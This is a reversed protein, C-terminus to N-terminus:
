VAAITEVQVMCAALKRSEGFRMRVEAVHEGDDDVLREAHVLADSVAKYCNDLDRTVRWGKGRHITVTVCVPYATAKEMRFRLLLVAQQLWGEYATSRKIMIKGAGFGNRKQRRVARWLGNVSPPIPLEIGDM